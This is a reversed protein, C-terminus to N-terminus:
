SLSKAAGSSGDSICTVVSTKNPVQCQSAGVQRVRNLLDTEEHMIGALRVKHQHLLNEAVHLASEEKTEM